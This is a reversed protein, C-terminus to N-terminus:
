QRDPKSESPNPFQTAVDTGTIQAVPYSLSPYPFHTSIVCFNTGGTTHGLPCYLLPSPSQKGFDTVTDQTLPHYVSPCFPHTGYAM